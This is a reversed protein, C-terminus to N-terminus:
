QIEENNKSMAFTFLVIALGLFLILSILDGSVGLSEGIGTNLKDAVSIEVGRSNTEWIWGKLAAIVIGTLAGGAILGSSLLAGPGIDSESEKSKKIKDVIM